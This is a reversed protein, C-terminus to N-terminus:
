HPETIKAKNLIQLNPAIAFKYQQNIEKQEPQSTKSADQNFWDDFRQKVETNFIGNFFLATITAISALITVVKTLTFKPEPQSTSQDQDLDNAINGHNDGQNLAGAGSANVQANDSININRSQDTSRDCNNRRLLFGRCISGPLLPSIM